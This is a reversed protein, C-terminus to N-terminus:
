ASPQREDARESQKEKGLVHKGLEIRTVVEDM